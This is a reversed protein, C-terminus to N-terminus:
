PAVLCSDRRGRLQGRRLPTETHLRDLLVEHLALVPLDVVRVSSCRDGLGYRRMLGRIMPVVNDLVTIVGVSEGLSLANPMAPEFGGV